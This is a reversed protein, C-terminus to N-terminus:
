QTLNYREHAWQVALDAHPRCSEVFRGRITMHPSWNCGKDDPEQCRFVQDLFQCEACVESEGLKENLIEVLRERTVYERMANM